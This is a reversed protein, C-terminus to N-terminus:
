HPLPLGLPYPLPLNYGFMLLMMGFASLLLITLIASDWWKNNPRLKKLLWHTVILIGVAVVGILLSNLM